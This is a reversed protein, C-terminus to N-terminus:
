FDTTGGKGDQNVYITKPYPIKIGERAFVDLATKRIQREVAWQQMPKTRALITIVVKSSALETIGLVTPGEVIDKNKSKLKQLEKELIDIVKDINEEYTVAVTVLARMVGRSYNTVLTVEGNPIIHLQGGFDRLRTVRLGLEEVIGSVGAIEAYDGVNYQNEFIIFFGSIVDKVLNQAGFGVAIGGVGAATLLSTTNIGFVELINVSAVFYIVYRLISKLLSTLTKRKNEDLQLKSYGQMAFVSNIFNGGIWILTKAIVLTTLIKVIPIISSPLQDVVTNYAEIFNGM